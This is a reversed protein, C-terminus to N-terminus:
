FIKFDFNTLVIDLSYLTSEQMGVLKGMGCWFLSVEMSPATDVDKTEEKLKEQLAKCCCM